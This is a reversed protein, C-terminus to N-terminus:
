SDDNRIQSELNNIMLEAHDFSLGRLEIDKNIMHIKITLLGFKDNLPNTIKEIAFIKKTFILTSKKIFKGKKILLKEPQIIYEISLLRKYLLIDLISAMFLISGIIFIYSYSDGETKRLLIFSFILILFVLGLINELLILYVYRSSINFRSSSNKINVEM